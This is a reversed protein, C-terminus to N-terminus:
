RKEKRRKVHRFYAATAITAAASIYTSGIYPVLLTVKNPPILCFLTARPKVYDGVRNPTPPPPLAPPEYGYTENTEVYKPAPDEDILTDNDNDIYKHRPIGNQFDYDIDDEDTQGDDDDDGEFGWASGTAYNNLEAITTVGDKNLDAKVKGDSDPELAPLLQKHTFSNQHWGLFWYGDPTVGETILFRTRRQVGAEYFNCAFKVGFDADLIVAFSVGERFSNFWGRLDNYSIYEGNFMELHTGNGHGRFYFVVCILQDKHFRAILQYFGIFARVFTKNARKGILLIDSFLLYSWWRQMSNKLATTDKEAFHLDSSNYGIFLRMYTFHGTTDIISPPVTFDAELLVVWIVASLNDKFLLNMLGSMNEVGMCGKFEPSKDDIGHFYICTRPTKKPSYITPPNLNGDDDLAVVWGLKPSNYRKGIWEGPPATADEGYPDGETHSTPWPCYTSERTCLFRGKLAGNKDFVTLNYMRFKRRFDGEGYSKVIETLGDVVIKWDYSASKGTESTDGTEAVRTIASWIPPACVSILLIIILAVKQIRM